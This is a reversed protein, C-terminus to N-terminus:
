LRFVQLLPPGARARIGVSSTVFALEPALPTAVVGQPRRMWAGLALSAGVAAVATEAVALCMLVADGMHDHRMASHAIVIAGAVSLVVALTALRRRQRRLTSNVSCFVVLAYSRKV